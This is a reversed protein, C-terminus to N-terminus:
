MSFTVKNAQKRQFIQHKEIWKIFKHIKWLIWGSNISYLLDILQYLLSLHEWNKYEIYNPIEFDFEQWSISTNMHLDWVIEKNIFQKLLEKDEMKVFFNSGNISELLKRKKDSIEISWLIKNTSVWNNMLDQMLEWIEYEVSDNNSLENLLAKTYISNLRDLKLNSLELVKDLKELREM